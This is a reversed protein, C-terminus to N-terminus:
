SYSIKAYLIYYIIDHNHTYWIYIVTIMTYKHSMMHITRIHFTYREPQREREIAHRM